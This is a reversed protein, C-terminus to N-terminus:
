ETVVLEITRYSNVRAQSNPSYEAIYLMNGAVVYRERRDISCEYLASMGTAISYAVLTEDNYRTYLVDDAVFFYQPQDVSVVIRCSNEHFDM